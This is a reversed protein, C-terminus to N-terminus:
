KAEDVEFSLALQGWNDSLKPDNIRFQLTCPGDCEYVESDRSFARKELEKGDLLRRVVLSGENGGPVPYQESAKPDGTNGGPGYYRKGRETDWTGEARVRVRVRKGNRNAPVDYQGNWDQTASVSGRDLLTQAQTQLASPLSPAAQKLLSTAKSYDTQLTGIQNKLEEAAQRARKEELQASLAKAEALQFDSKAFRAQVILAVLAVLTTLFSMWNAPNHRFPHELAFIEAGLKRRELEEASAVGGTREVSKEGHLDRHDDM